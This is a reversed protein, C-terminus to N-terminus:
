AISIIGSTNRQNCVLGLVDTVARYMVYKDHPRSPSHRKDREGDMYMPRIANMDLTYLLKAEGEDDLTPDYNITVGKFNSDAVSVDIAGSSSWGNQTYTGNVRLEKELADLFDSGAFMMHEFFHAVGSRGEQERASGVHYMVSVYVM